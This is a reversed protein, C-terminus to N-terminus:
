AERLEMVKLIDTRTVIGLIRGDAVIPIRGINNRSMLRFADSLMATPPLTILNRAMIDGVRKADRDIESTRHVDELTVMGTLMGAGDLVPFGLHKTAYMLRIVEPVPMDPAVTVLNTAMVDKVAVDRLLVTSRVAYFEQDAGLYIFVGIIILIFNLTLVGVIAFLFAFAKGVDAAIKTAKPLPMRQALWARLVRGGDMPFAPLLNFAFLIFNLIALYGFLFIAVAGVASVPRPVLYVVAAAVIGLAASTVPGALAMPLEDRPNPLENEISSVGGLILLTISNIKIGRRLAVICHALEHVLVCFFLALAVVVGLIYPNWGAMILTTDAGQVGFVDFVFSSSYGIDTGIIWAFLPIALLFSWHLLVPIGFLSGIKISGAM